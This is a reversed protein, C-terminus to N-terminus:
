RGMAERLVRVCDKIRGAKQHAIAAQRAAHMKAAGEATFRSVMMMYDFAKLREACDDARAPAAALLACCLAVARLGSM